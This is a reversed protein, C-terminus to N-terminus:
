VSFILYYEYINLINKDLDYIFCFTRYKGTQNPIQNFTNLDEIYILYYINQNNETIYITPETSQLITTNNNTWINSYQIRKELDEIEEQNDFEVTSTAIIQYSPMQIKGLKSTFIKGKNPFDFQIKEELKNLYSYDDFLYDKHAFYFVTFYSYICLLIIIITGGIINKKCHYGVKKYKIGLTISFIPIPLFLLLVWMYKCETLDNTVKSLFIALESGIFLSAISLWFLLLLFIKKFQNDNWRNHIKIQLKRWFSMKCRM